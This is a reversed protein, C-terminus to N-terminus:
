LRRLEALLLALGLREVGEGTLQAPRPAMEGVAYVNAGRQAHELVPGRGAVGM